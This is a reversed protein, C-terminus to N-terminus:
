VYFQVSAFETFCRFDGVSTQDDDPRVASGYESIFTM